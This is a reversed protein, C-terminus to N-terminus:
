ITTYYHKITDNRHRMVCFNSLMDENEDNSSTKSVPYIRTSGYERCGSHGARRLNFKKIM